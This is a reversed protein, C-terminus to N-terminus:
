KDNAPPTYTGAPRFGMRSIKYPEKEETFIKVTLLNNTSTSLLVGNLEYDSSSEITHLVLDPFNSHIRQTMEVHQKITLANLFDTGFNEKAYQKIETTDSKNILEVVEKLRKGVPTDPYETQSHILSSSLLMITLCLIGVISKSFTPTQSNIRAKM